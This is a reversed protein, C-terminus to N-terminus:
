TLGDDSSDSDTGIHAYIHMLQVIHYEGASRKRKKEGSEEKDVIDSGSPEKGIRALNFSM